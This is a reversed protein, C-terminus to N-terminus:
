MDNPMQNSNARIEHSQLSMSSEQVMFEDTNIIFNSRSNENSTYDPDFPYNMPKINTLPQFSLSSDPEM